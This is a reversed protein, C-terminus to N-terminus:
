VGGSLIKFWRVQFGDMILHLEGSSLTFREGTILDEMRGVHKEIGELEEVPLLVEAPEPSINGMIFSHEGGAFAHNLFVTEGPSLFEFHGDGPYFARDESRLAIFRNMLPVYAKRFPDHDFDLESIHSKHRNLDRPRGSLAYGEEDNELGWLDNMYVAPVAQEMTLVYLQALALRRAEQEPSEIGELTFACRSTACLEYPTKGDITWNLWFDVPPKEALEEPPEGTIDSLASLFSDRSQKERLTMIEGEHHFLSALVDRHEDWILEHCIKHFTDRPITGAPVSRFKPRGGRDEIIKQLRYFDRISVHGDTRDVGLGQVSRGDHTSLMVFLVLNGARQEEMMENLRELPALSRENFAAAVGNVQGFLYYFGGERGMSYVVPDPSNVEDLPRIRPATLELALRIVQILLNGEEMDFNRKGIEKWLYKIADMRMMALDGDAMLSFMDDFIMHFGEDSLPNVDAQSESFTTYVYFIEGFIGDQEERFIRGYEESLGLSSAFGELSEAARGTLVRRGSQIESDRSFADRDIKRKATWKLFSRYIRDDSATLGQDNVMKFWLSMILLVEPDVAKLGADTFRRNMAAVCDKAEAPRGGPYKRMGTFLPFPRPRFAADLLGERKIHEYEAPDIIIFADGRGEGRRYAELADSDSDLHNVVYDLMVAYDGALRAIDEATGFRPDVRDRSKQSFGGDNFHSNWAQRFIEELGPIDLSALQEPSEEWLSTVRRNEDLYGTRQLEEVAALARGPDTLDFLDQPWIDGHSIPREPLIHVGGVAPFRTSLVQHLTKLTRNGDDYVNDPYAIVFVKGALHDYPKNRDFGAQSEIREAPLSSLYAEMRDILWVCREKGKEDGYIRRLLDEMKKMRPIREGEPLIDSLRGMSFVGKSGIDKTLM